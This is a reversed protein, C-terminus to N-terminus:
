VIDDNIPETPSIREREAPMEALGFLNSLDTKGYEDILAVASAWYEKGMVKAEVQGYGGKCVPILGETDNEALVFPIWDRLLTPETNDEENITHTPNPFTDPVPVDLQEKTVTLYLQIGEVWAGYEKAPYFTKFKATSFHNFNYISYDGEEVINILHGKLISKNLSDVLDSSADILAKPVYATIDAM